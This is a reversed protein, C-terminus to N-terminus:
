YMKFNYKKDCANCEHKKERHEGTHKRFHRTLSSREPFGKSCIRCKHPKDDFHIRVHRRLQVNASFFIMNAISQISFIM